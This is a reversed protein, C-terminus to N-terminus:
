KKRLEIITGDFTTTHLLVEYGPIVYLARKGLDERAGTTINNVADYCIGLPQGEFINHLVTNLNKIDECSLDERFPNRDKEKILGEKIFLDKVLPYDKLMNTLTAEQIKSLIIEDQFVNELTSAINILYSYIKVPLCAERIFKRTLRM